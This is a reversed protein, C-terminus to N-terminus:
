QQAVLGDFIARGNPSLSYRSRLSDRVNTLIRSARSLLAYERSGQGGHYLSGFLYYAEAIDFRDFYPGETEASADAVETWEDSRKEVEDVTWEYSLVYQGNNLTTHGILTLDAEAHTVVREFEDGELSNVDGSEPWAIGLEEAAQKYDDQTLNVLHGPANEDLWEVATEFADEVSNRFTWVYVVTSGYAGFAFRWLHHYDCDFASPNAIPHESAM